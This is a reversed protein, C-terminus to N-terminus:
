VVEVFGIITVTCATATEQIASIKDGVTNLPIPIDFSWTGGGDPDGTGVLKQTSAICVDNAVSDGNQVIHLTFYKTASNTNAVHIHTITAKYGTPVTYLDTDTAGPQGQYLIGPTPLNM